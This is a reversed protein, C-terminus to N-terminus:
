CRLQTHPPGWSNADNISFWQGGECGVWAGKQGDLGSVANANWHSMYGEVTPSYAEPGGAWTGFMGRPTKPESFVGQQFTQASLNPGALQLASFIYLATWYAEPYYKEAPEQGPRALKFVQYAESQAKPPFTFAQAAGAHSWQSQSTQRGQPDLWPTVTWEPSYSQSDASRSLFIEMIPDCGCIVTTVGASRMQAMISTSQQEETSINISYSVRKAITTGCSALGSQFQDGEQMYQPNEPTILGFTRTRRQYSPDGAFIAPMGAARRCIGQIGATVVKTGDPAISYEYPAYQRFWSHPLGVAGIAIVHQQALDEEYPQTSALTPSSSLDMFGGMSRATAADAQAGQLDQGQDEAINDGQGNYDKVVLHRGYLEYSKNFLDIYARLDSLYQDDTGPAASGAAAFAAKEEASNTRRFVATITDGSVGAATAGGNNGRYTPVCPPAYVTWTVQKGGNACAAGGRTAGGSGTAAAPTIGSASASGGGAGGAAAGQASTAGGAGTALSGAGGAGTGGPTSGGSGVAQVHQGRQNISPVLTLVLVIAAIAVGMPAYRRALRALYRRVMAEVQSSDLVPPSSRPTPTM